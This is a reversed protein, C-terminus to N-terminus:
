AGVERVTQANDNIQDTFCPIMGVIVGDTLKINKFAFEFAERVAKPSGCRRGAALIKFALCPKKVQRIVRCMREPDSAVYTEGVPALGFEKRFEDQTRTLRYFCTMYYDAPWGNHEVTEIVAPNHASVGAALGADHACNLFDRVVDMRGQKLLRDTEEGRFAIAIPKHGCAREIAKRALPWVTDARFDNHEIDWTDALALWQLTCGADRIRPLQRELPQPYNSQWATIGAKECALMYQVLQDDSFYDVMFRDLLGNFHSYGFLPNGGSVLRSVEHGAIKMTPLPTPGAGTATPAALLGAALATAGKLFDRRGSSEPDNKRPCYTSSSDVASM